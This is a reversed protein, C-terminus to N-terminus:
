DETIGDIIRDCLNDNNKTLVIQIQIGHKEFIAFKITELMTNYRMKTFSVNIKNVLEQANIKM